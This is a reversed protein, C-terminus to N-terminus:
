NWNLKVYNMKYLQRTLILCSSFPSVQQQHLTLQTASDRRTQRTYDEIVDRYKSNDVKLEELKEELDRVRNKEAELEAM